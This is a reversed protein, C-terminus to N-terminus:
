ILEEKFLILATTIQHKEQNGQLIESLPLKSNLGKKSDLAM